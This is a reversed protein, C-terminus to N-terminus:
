EEVTVLTSFRYAVIANERDIGVSKGGDVYWEMIGATAIEGPIADVWEPPQRQTANANAPIWAELESPPVVALLQIDWESPGPVLGGGADAYFLDYELAEYEREFTVYEELQSIRDELTLRVQSTEDISRSSSEAATFSLGDCGFLLIVFLLSLPQAKTLLGKLPYRTIANIM